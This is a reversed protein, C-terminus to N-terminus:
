LKSLDTETQAPFVPRTDREGGREAACANERGCLRTGDARVCLRVVYGVDTMRADRAVIAVRVSMELRARRM